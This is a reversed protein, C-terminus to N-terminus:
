GADTFASVKRRALTAGAYGYIAAVKVNTETMVLGALTAGLKRLDSVADVLAGQPTSEWRFALLTADAHRAIALASSAVLAPPACIIVRDYDNTIERLSDRLEEAFPQRRAGGAPQAPRMTQFGLRRGNGMLSDGSAAVRKLADDRTPLCDIVAVRQGNEACVRALAVCLEAAGEGPLASTALLTRAVGERAGADVLTLLKNLAGVAEPPPHLMWTSERALGVPLTALLPAGTRGEADDGTRFVERRAEGVLVWVSAAGGGLIVGIVILLLRKPASPAEPAWAEAVVKADPDQLEGRERTETLRTIVQGYVARQADMERELSSLDLNTITADLITRELAVLQTRLTASREEATVIQARLSRSLQALEDDIQTALDRLAIDLQAIDAARQDVRRDLAARQARTTERKEVLAGLRASSAFQMAASVDGQAVLADFRVARATAAARDADATVLAGTLQGRQQNLVELSLADAPFLEARRSEFARETEQLRVRLDAETASLWDIARQNAMLKDAIQGEIYVTAVMNAIAAALRPYQSDAEIELIYSTGFQSVRVKGALIGAAIQEPTAEADGEDRPPNLLRRVAKRVAKITDAVPAPPQLDPNFEAVNALNLRRAVEQLIPPSPIIALESLIATDTYEPNDVVNAINIVQAQRTTLLIRTMATYTPTISFSAAAILTAMVLSAAGIAYKGRWLAIVFHWYNISADAAAPPQPPPAVDDRRTAYSFTTTMHTPAEGM